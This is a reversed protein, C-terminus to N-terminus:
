NLEEHMEMLWHEDCLAEDINRQEVQSVFDMNNCLIRLRFRTSVGKSIEGIINDLSLDKRTRWEKPFEKPMTMSIEKSQEFDEAKIDDELVFDKEQFGADETSLEKSIIFDRIQIIKKEM